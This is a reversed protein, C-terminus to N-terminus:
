CVEIFTGQALLHKVWAIVRSGVAGPPLCGIIGMKCISFSLSLSPLYHVRAVYGTFPHHRSNPDQGGSVM